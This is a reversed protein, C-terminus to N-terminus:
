VELLAEALYDAILVDVTPPEQVTALELVIGHVNPLPYLAQILSWARYLWPSPGDRDDRVAVARSGPLLHAVASACRTATAHGAISRADHMVMRGRGSDHHVHVVIGRDPGIWQVAARRSAYYSPEDVILARGGRSVIAQRISEALVRNRAAETETVEITGDHDLDFVAGPDGHPHGPILSISRM